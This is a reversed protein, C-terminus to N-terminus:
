PCGPFTQQPSKQKLERRLQQLRRHLPSKEDPHTCEAETLRREADDYRGQQLYISSLTELAYPRLLGGRDVALEALREAEDLNTGRSLYVMALNNAAGPHGPVLELAREYHTQAEDLAEQQFLLNGMAIWAPAYNPRRNLATRFEARALDDRGQAAYTEGLKVHEEPTLPDHQVFPRPFASCATLLLVVVTFSRDFRPRM